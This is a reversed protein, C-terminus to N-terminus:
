LAPSARSSASAPTACGGASDRPQHEPAVLVITRVRAHVAQAATRDSSASYETAHNVFVIRSGTWSPSVGRQAGSQARM